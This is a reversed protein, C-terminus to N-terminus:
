TLMKCSPNGLVDLSFCPLFILFFDFFIKVRKQTKQIINKM